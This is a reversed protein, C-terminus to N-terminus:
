EGCTQESARKKGVREERFTGSFSTKDKETVSEELDPDAKVGGKKL